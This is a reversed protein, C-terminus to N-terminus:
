GEETQSPRLLQEQPTTDTMTAARLLTDDQSLRSPRLLEKQLAAAKCAKVLSEAFVQKKKRNSSAEVNSSAQIILEREESPLRQVFRRAAWVLYLHIGISIGVYVIVTRVTVNRIFLPFLFISFFYLAITQLAYKSWRERLSSIQHKQEETLSHDPMLKKMILWEGCGAANGAKDRM